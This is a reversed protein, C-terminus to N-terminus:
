EDVEGGLERYEAAWKCMLGLVDIGGEAEDRIADDMVLATSETLPLHRLDRPASM